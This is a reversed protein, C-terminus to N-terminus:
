AIVVRFYEVKEEKGKREIRVVDGVDCNEPLAPDSKKIKPLQMPSINFRKLLAETDAKSVKTHKSQLVHM